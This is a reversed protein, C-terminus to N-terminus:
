LGKKAWKTDLDMWSVGKFSQKSKAKNSAKWVREAIDLQEATFSEQYYHASTGDMKVEAMADALCEIEPYECDAFAIMTRDHLEKLEDGNVIFTKAHACEHWATHQITDPNTLTNDIFLKTKVISKNGNTSTTTPAVGITNEATPTNRENWRGWMRPNCESKTIEAAQKHVPKQSNTITQSHPETIFYNTNEKIDTNAFVALVALLAVGISSIIINTKM